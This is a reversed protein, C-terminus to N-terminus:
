KEPFLGKVVSWVIGVINVMTTGLLVSIITKSLKFGFWGWGQAMIVVVVFASWGVL